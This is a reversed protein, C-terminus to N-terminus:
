GCAQGARLCRAHGGGQGARAGAADVIRVAEGPTVAVGDGRADAHHAAVPQIPTNVLLTPQFPVAAGTQTECSAQGSSTSPVRLHRARPLPGEAGCVEGKASAAASEFVPQRRHQGRRTKIHFVRRLRLRRWTGREEASEALFWFFQAIGVPILVLLSNGAWDAVQGDRM